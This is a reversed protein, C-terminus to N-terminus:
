SLTHGPVLELVECPTGAAALHKRLEAPTGVLPPFTGYHMPIVAEVGLLGCAHAAEFPDMTYFGGIPLCALTPRYLEAILRMDGFVATDGAFYLRLGEAFEVVYGAPEGLYIPLGDQEASSSHFAHVMTVKAGAVAVTGGKNMAIMQDSPLGQKALYMALEVMAVVKAQTRQALPVADGVHDGHGHSVLIADAATPSKENDPCRPNHNLFPDIYFIKGASRMRFAAHGLWTIQVGHTNAM